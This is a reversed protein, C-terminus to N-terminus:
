VSSDSRFDTRLFLQMSPEFQVDMPGPHLFMVMNMKMPTANKTSGMKIRMKAKKVWNVDGASSSVVAAVLMSGVVVSEVRVSSM